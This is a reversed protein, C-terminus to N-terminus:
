LIVAAAWGFILLPLNYHLFTPVVTDWIHNHQGDVNLGSTPGLTSDSAPSGADGLAGATGVLAVVAMPSFGLQIALPVFIVAIIPVTSFSSGIGMTILLGVILMALAALARSGDVLAAATAVLSNIDGSDRLVQAFGAAAIMIFGVMAMMKMGEVFADDGEQWKLVGSLSFILFGIMGGFVMSETLLQVVFAAALAIVAVILTKASYRAGTSETREIRSLDYDRKGRYTIFVAVLLGLVMGFAPIAMASLPSIGDTEMGSRQISSLLIENLYISGFGVPLLMYPTVLGFTLVCAVLRRDMQLRAMVFLLPPVLLPIFAIHIPVINQSSIAAILLVATVGYRVLGLHRPDEGKGVATALKDALMHPIGSKSIAVAFAGLMAYSLAIQAGGGIGTNFSDITEKISHDSISGALLASTILSIVVNVRMLSLTIMVLVSVLVANLRLSDPILTSYVLFAAIATFIAVVSWSVGSKAADGSPQPYNM